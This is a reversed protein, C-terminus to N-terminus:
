RIDAELLSIWKEALVAHSHNKKLYELGRRGMVKRQDNGAARLRLIGEVIAKTSEPRITLGAGASEVPDFASNVANLIPLEAAMYDYLKNQNGGFQFAPRDLFSAFGVDVHSLLDPVQRKPIRSLFAVRSLGAARKQLFKLQGGSGVFVFAIDEDQLARAADVLYKLGYSGGYGGVYGVLFGARPLLKRLSPSLPETESRTQDLDIGNPISVFRYPDLGKKVMYSESAPSVSVVYDSTAYALREARTMLFILPWLLWNRSSTDIIVQPWLDRAEFVLRAGWHRSAARAAWIWFPPPSSCLILDPRDPVLEVINMLHRHYSWYNILRGLNSGFEPTRVWIYNIGDILEESSDGSVEPLTHLKHSYCSAIITVKYGRSVLARAMYYSRYNPGYQPAGANHNVILLHKM